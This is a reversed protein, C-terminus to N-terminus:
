REVEEPLEVRLTFRGGDDDTEVVGGLAGVRERMGLLGGGPEGAVADGPTPNTMVFSVLGPSQEFTLEVASGPAHRRANTLGEQVARYLVYGSTAPVDRWRGTTTVAQGAGRAQDVLAAVDELTPQPRRPDTVQGATDEGDARRLVTLAHRLEGIAARADTAVAALLARVDDDLHPHQYPASEARVAILSVHHAVVDHLDRAMRAREAVVAEKEFARQEAAEAALRRDRSRSANGLAAAVILAATYWVLYVVLILLGGGDQGGSTVPGIPLIAPNGGSSYVAVVVTALGWAPVADRWRRAAAVVMVALIALLWGWVFSNTWPVMLFPLAAIATAAYPWRRALVVALTSVVGAAALLPRPDGIGSTSWVPTAVLFAAVLVAVVGTAIWGTVESRRAAVARDPASGSTASAASTM